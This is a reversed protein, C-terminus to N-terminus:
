PFATPTPWHRRTITLWWDDFSGALRDTATEDAVRRRAASEWVITTVRLHGHLFLLLDELDAATLRERSHRTVNAPPRDTPPVDHRYVFAATGGTTPSLLCGWVPQAAVAQYRRRLEREHRQARRLSRVQERRLAELHRRQEAEQAALRRTIEEHIPRYAATAAATLAHHRLRAQDLRPRGGPLRRHWGATVRALEAEAAHVAAQYWRSAATWERHEDQTAPVADHWHWLRPPPDGAGAYGRFLVDAPAMTPASLERLLIRGQLTM